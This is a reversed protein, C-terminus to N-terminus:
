KIIQNLIENMVYIKEAPIKINNKEMILYGKKVLEKINFEEQINVKFKNYFKYVDIGELKRLGLIIENEMDERKSLIIEQKRFNQQIYEKFNKTNEYRVNNLYGHAGLGFGYYENNNWYGLNHISEYGPLAFNSVEYHNYGKSTLKKVIEQYMKYDFEEDIPLVNKIKLATHEEIILSYTSIHHSKLKLAYRLDKRLISMTDINTAYILDINYNDFGYEKLLKFSNFIQNINHKRNLYKLKYENFSQVGISLRNVKNSKLVELLETTIDNVNLEFTFEYYKQVKFVDIIEFLLKIQDINLCSPSGGGIYISKITDNEYYKQVEIKLNRLYDNVWENHYYFKCFDCYSCISKCFPIHIYVSKM